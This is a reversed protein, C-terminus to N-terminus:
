RLSTKVVLLTHFITLVVHADCCTNRAKDFLAFVEASPQHVSAIVARRDKRNALRRALQVLEIASSSDLGQLLMM